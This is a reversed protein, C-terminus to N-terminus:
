LSFLPREDVVFASLGFDALVPWGDHRLLVNEPKLDRYAIGLSHLRRPPALALSLSTLPLPPSLSLSRTLSHTLLLSLPLSHSHPLSHTHSRQLQQLEAAAPAASM